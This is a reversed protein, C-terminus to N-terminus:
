GGSGLLRDKKCMWSGPVRERGMKREWPCYRSKKKGEKLVSSAALNRGGCGLGSSEEKEGNWGSYQRM